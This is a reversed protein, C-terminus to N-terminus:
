LIHEVDLHKQSHSLWTTGNKYQNMKWNQHDKMQHNVFTTEIELLVKNKHHHEFGISSWFHKAKLITPYINIIWVHLRAFPEHILTWSFEKLLMITSTFFAHISAVWAKIWLQLLLKKFYHHHGKAKHEGLVQHIIDYYFTWEIHVQANDLENKTHSALCWFPNHDRTKQVIKMKWTWRTEFHLPPLQQVNLNSDL